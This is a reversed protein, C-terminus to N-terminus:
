PAVLTFAVPTASGTGGSNTRAYGIEFAPDQNPDAVIIGLSGISLNEGDHVGSEVSAQPADDPNTIAIQWEFSSAADGGSQSGDAQFTMTPISGAPIPISDGHAVAVLTTPPVAEPNTFEIHFGPTSTGAQFIAVGTPANLPVSGGQAICGTM